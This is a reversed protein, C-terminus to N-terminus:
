VPKETVAPEETAAPKEIVAPKGTVTPVDTIATKETVAPKETPKSTITPMEAVTPKETVASKETVTSKKTVTTEMAIATNETLAPNETIKRTETPMESITEAVTPKGTETLKETVTPDKTVTSKGTTTPKQTVTSKKTVPPEKTVIPKEIVMKEEVKASPIEIPVAKSTVSHPSQNKEEQLNTSFLSNAEFQLSELNNESVSGRLNKKLSTKLKIEEEEMRKLLAEKEKLEQLISLKMRAIKEVETAHVDIMHKIIEKPIEDSPETEADKLKTPLEKEVEADATQDSSSNAKFDDTVDMQNTNLEAKAEKISEKILLTWEESMETPSDPSKEKQDSPAYSSNIADKVMVSLDDDVIIGSGKKQVKNKEEETGM